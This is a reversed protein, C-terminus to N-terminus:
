EGLLEKYLAILKEEEAHWNYKEHVLRKGNEGMQKAEEPNNLIYECARRIDAPDYPDVAVGCIGDKENGALAKWFDFNSYVVPIAMAMYEFMKNPLANIHNPEAYFIVLGVKARSYIKAVEKRSVLGYYDTQSFGPMAKVKQELDATEFKGALLLRYDVGDLSEVTENIGRIRTIGGVYCIANERQEYPSPDLFEELMPFNNVTVVKKCGEKVFVDSITDTATIIASFNKSCSKERVSFGWSIM